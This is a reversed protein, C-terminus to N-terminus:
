DQCRRRNGRAPRCRRLDATGPQRGRTRVIPRRGVERRRHVRELRHPEVGDVHLGPFVAIRVERRGRKGGERAPRREIGREGTARQEVFSPGRGGVRAENVAGPKFISQHRLKATRRIREGHLAAVRGPRHAGGAAGAPEELVRRAVVGVGGVVEHPHIREHGLHSVQDLADDNVRDGLEIQLDHLEIVM